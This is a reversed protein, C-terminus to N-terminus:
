FIGFHGGGGRPRREPANGDRIGENKTKETFHSVRGSVNMHRNGGRHVGDIHNQGHGQEKKENNVAHHVSTEQQQSGSPKGM